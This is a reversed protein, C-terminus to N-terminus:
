NDTKLSNIDQLVIMGNTLISGSPMVRVLGIEQYLGCLITKEHVHEIYSNKIGDTVACHLATIM